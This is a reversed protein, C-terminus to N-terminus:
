KTKKKLWNSLSISGHWYSIVEEPKAYHTIGIYNYYRFAKVLKTITKGNTVVYLVHSYSSNRYESMKSYYRNKSKLNIELEVALKFSESKLYFDPFPEFTRDFLTHKLNKIQSEFVAQINLLKELQEKLSFLLLQHTKKYSSTKRRLTKLKDSLGIIKSNTGIIETASKDLNKRLDLSSVPEIFIYGHKKLCNLRHSASFESSFFKKQIDKYFCFDQNGLTEIILRDRETLRM